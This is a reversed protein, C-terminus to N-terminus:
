AHGFAVWWGPLHFPTQLWDPMDAATIAHHDVGVTVGVLHLVTCSEHRNILGGEKHVDGKWLLFLAVGNTITPLYFVTRYLPSAACSRTM